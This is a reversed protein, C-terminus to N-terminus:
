PSHSVQLEGLPFQPTATPGSVLRTPVRPLNHPGWLVLHCLSRYNSLFKQSLFFISWIDKLAPVSMASFRLKQSRQFRSATIKVSLVQFIKFSMRELKCQFIKGYQYLLYPLSYFVAVSVSLNIFYLLLFCQLCGPGM